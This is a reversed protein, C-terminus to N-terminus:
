ANNPFIIVKGLSTIVEGHDADLYQILGYGSLKDGRAVSHIVGRSDQLWARGPVIAQLHYTLKPPEVKHPKKLVVKKVAPKAAVVVPRKAIEQMAVSMKKLTDAMEIQNSGLMSVQTAVNNVKQQMASIKSANSSAAENAAAANSAAVRARLGISPLSVAPKTIAPAPAPVAKAKHTCSQVCSFVVLVVVVIAIVRSKTTKFAKGLLSIDFGNLLKAIVSSSKAAKSDNATSKNEAANYDEAVSDTHVAETDAHESEHKPADVVSTADNYEDEPYVYEKDSM